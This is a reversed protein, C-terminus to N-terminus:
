LGYQQITLSKLADSRAAGKQETQRIADEAGAGFGLIDHL